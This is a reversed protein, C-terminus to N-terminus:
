FDIFAGTPPAFNTTYRAYRSIRIDDLYGDLYHAIGTYDMFRGITVPGTGSYMSTFTGSGISTGDKYITITSGSRVVAIHMWTTLPTTGSSSSIVSDGTSSGNTSWYFRVQNSSSSGGVGIAWERTSAGGKSILYNYTANSSLYIWFEVTFNGSSLDFLKNHPIVINNSDGVNILISSGGFKSQTTSLAATGYTTMNNKATQDIIGANTFNLLFLTSAVNTPPATPPTFNATYQAVGSIFRVGSAWGTYFINQSQNAGVRPTTFATYTTTDNATTLEAVGNIYLVAASTGATPKVLAFHYWQNPYLTTNGGVITASGNIRGQIKSSVIRFEITQTSNYLKVIPIEAAAVTTPYFWGELTYAANGVATMNSPLTIYDSSGNFYASGGVSTTSYASGPAVGEFPQVSPTGAPTVTLNNTSSDRFRNSQCTLLVTNTIATLPLTPPTFSSGTYVASGKVVRLDSLYGGYYQSASHTYRGITPVYTTNSFDQACATPTGGVGNVYVTVVNSNRVVAFHYWTNTTVTTSSFINTGGGSTAFTFGMKSSASDIGIMFYNTGSVSQSWILPNGSLTTPYIWGEITFNGTGYAFNASAPVTLYDSSGNFFNSWGTQSFPSFTGQIPKGSATATYANSSSDVYSVNTKGNSGDAHILLSNLNFYPDNFSAAAPWTSDRLNRVVDQMTWVGTATSLTPTNNLGVVGGEPRIRPM